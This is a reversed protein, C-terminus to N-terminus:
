HARGPQISALYRIIADLRARAMQSDARGGKRFADGWVPMDRDGHSEVDHGEVIRRVRAAPFVGGNNRALQTLDTPAHRLAPTMPGNGTATAGHCSACHERFLAAGETDPSGAEAMTSALSGVLLGTAALHLLATGAKRRQTSQASGRLHTM